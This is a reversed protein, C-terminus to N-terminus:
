RSMRELQRLSLAAVTAPSDPRPRSLTLHASCYRPPRGDSEAEAPCGCFLTPEDGVPWKCQGPELQLLTVPASGLLPKFARSNIREVNPAVIRTPDVPVGFRTSRKGRAGDLQAKTSGSRRADSKQAALAERFTM